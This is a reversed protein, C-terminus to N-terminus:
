DHRGVGPKPRTTTGGAKRHTPEGERQRAGQRGAPTGGKQAPPRPSTESQYQERIADRTKKIAKYLTTRSIGTAAALTNLTHEHLYYILTVSKEFHPMAELKSNVYGALLEREEEQLAEPESWAVIHEALERHRANPRRHLYHYTSTSSHYQNLMIRVVWYKIAGTRILGEIKEPKGGYLALITEHALEEYDPYRGRTITRAIEVVHDYHQALYTDLANM